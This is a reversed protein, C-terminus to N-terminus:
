FPHDRLLAVYFNRDVSFEDAKVTIPMRQWTRKPKIMTMVGPATTVRIPMDFAAVASGWRYFLTDSLIRYEFVPLQATRLYQDFVKSLNIGSQASIYDEVQKGMVTQHRFTTQLGRLIQRWKEDDNVVQRITHLMNGGKYYMDGSGETNVGYVGIIPADNQIAARTGIVYTSGDEKGFRCETYLNEAYNAFSEHVWMDAVDKTTINNGWWEHASEHVVIFDWKMGIGTGSLDRGLYGNQYKNGYAVASQHEMGLHPTEVLKYGDEYWPYPGFWKEFCQMMPKVDQAWQKKAAELHNALPYFDMTLKGAEGNYVDTYHAYN